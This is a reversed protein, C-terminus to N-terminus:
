GDEIKALYGVGLFLVILPISWAAVYVPLIAVEGFAGVMSDAFFVTFGLASGTILLRLTGGERTLSMSVGAAIFTMAILMVPLSLLRNFKLRLDRASFGAKENERITTPMEWFGAQARGGAQESLIQTDITTPLSVADLREPQEGPVNEIVDLLQWYGQVVLQASAADYRRAFRPDGESDRELIYFTPNDLTRAALDVSPARIVIQQDDRGERLWIDREFLQQDGGMWEASLAEFQDNMRTSLPNFALAWAIGLLAALWLCPRIISWASQGSARMVILESRRNMGNIAGMMGFLVVFPITQEILSPTKLATLWLLQLSSIDLEAGLDRNAEVFDVLMIISTVVFFAVFLSRLARLFIYRTLTYPM